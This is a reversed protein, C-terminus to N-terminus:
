LCKKKAHFESKAKSIKDRWPLLKFSVTAPSARLSHFVTCANHTHSSGKLASSNLKSVSWNQSETNQLM